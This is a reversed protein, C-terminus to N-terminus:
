ELPDMLQWEGDDLSCGAPGTATARPQARLVVEFTAVQDNCDLDGRATIVVRATDGDGSSDISYSYYRSVMSADIGLARWSEHEFRATGPFRREPLGCASDGPTFPASKPPVCRAQRDATSADSGSKFYELVRQRILELSAEAERSRLRRFHENALHIAGDLDVMIRDSKRLGIWDVASLARGFRDAHFVIGEVSWTIDALQRQINIPVDYYEFWGKVREPQEQGWDLDLTVLRGSLLLGRVRWLRDPVPRADRADTSIPEVDMLGLGMVDREQVMSARPTTMGSRIAAARFEAATMGLRFAGLERASRAAEAAVPAVLLVLAVPLLSVVSRM